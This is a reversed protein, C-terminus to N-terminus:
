RKMQSQTDTRTTTETIDITHTSPNKVLHEDITCRQVFFFQKPKATLLDFTMTVAHGSTSFIGNQPNITM